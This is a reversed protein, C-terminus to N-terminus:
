PAEKNESHQDPVGRRLVPHGSHLRRLDTRLRHAADAEGMSEFHRAMMAMALGSLYPQSQDWRAPVHALSLLGRRQQGTGTEMIMSCGLQYRTWCEAWPSMAAFGSEMVRRASARVDPDHHQANSLMGLLLVGPQEQLGPADLDVPPVEEGLSRRITGAYLDAIARLQADDGADWQELEAVRSRLGAGGVWAPPLYPCLGTREDWLHTLGSNGGGQSPPQLARYSATDIGARRLRAVELAPLLASDIEGRMLRCRLLGEAVVLATESSRGVFDPFLLEFIPEALGVDGRELRVRARWLQRATELHEALRPIRDDELRVDAIRDWSMTVPREGGRTFRVGDEDVRTVSCEIVPDGGRPRIEDAALLALAVVLVAPNM